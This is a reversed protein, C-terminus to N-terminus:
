EDQGGMWAGCNPCFNWKKQECVGGIFNYPAGYGCKNCSYSFISKGNEEGHYYANWRGKGRMRQPEVTPANEIMDAGCWKCYKDRPKGMIYTACPEGCQDCVAKEDNYGDEIWRGRMRQPEVDIVEVELDNYKTKFDETSKMGGWFKEGSDLIYCDPIWVGDIDVMYETKLVLDGNFRFVGIPADILRM